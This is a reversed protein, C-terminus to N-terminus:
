WTATWARKDVAVDVWQAGAKVVDPKLAPYATCRKGELVGAATLLQAAHCIAAIPQNAAAFHRV